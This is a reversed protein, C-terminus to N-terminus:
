QPRLVWVDQKKQRVENLTTMVSDESYGASVVIRYLGNEYGVIQADLFLSQLNKLSQNAEQRDYKSDLIIYFLGESPTENLVDMSEEVGHTSMQDETIRYEVSPVVGLSDPAPQERLIKIIEKIVVIPTTKAMTIALNAGNECTLQKANYGEALVRIKLTDMRIESKYMFSGKENTITYAGSSQDTEVHVFANPIFNGLSDSIKGVLNTHIIPKQINIFKSNNEDKRIVMFSAPNHAVFALENKVTNLHTLNVPQNDEADNNKYEYIDYGGKSPHGNSSFYLIENDITPNIDNGKSNIKNGLSIPAEFTDEWYISKFIDYGGISGAKDSSFYLINNKEDIYPFAFNGPTGAFLEKPKSWKGKKLLFLYLKATNKKKDILSAVAKEGNTFFAVSGFSLKQVDPLVEARFILNGDCLKEYAMMRGNSEAYLKAGFTTPNSIPYKSKIEYEKQPATTSKDFLQNVASTIIKDEKRKAYEGFIEKALAPKNTAQLTNAFLLFDNPTFNGKELEAFLLKEATTYDGNDYALRARDYNNTPLVTAHRVDLELLQALTNQVLAFYCFSLLYIKNM